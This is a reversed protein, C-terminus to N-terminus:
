DEYNHQIFFLGTKNDTYRREYVNHVVLEGLFSALNQICQDRARSKSVTEAHYKMTDTVCQEVCYSEIMLYEYDYTRLFKTLQSPNLKDSSHRFIVTNRDWPLSMKDMGIVYKDEMCLPYVMTNPPLHALNVYGQIQNDLFIGIDSPWPKVQVRAKYYGSTLVILFLIIITIIRPDGGMLRVKEQIVELMYGALISAGIPIFGWFRAPYVSVPLVAGMLGIFTFVTWILCILLWTKDKFFKRSHLYRHSIYAVSLIVLLCFFLGFGPQMFIDGHTLPFVIM